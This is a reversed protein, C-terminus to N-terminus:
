GRAPAPPQSAVPEDNLAGEIRIVQLGKIEWKAAEDQSYAIAVKVRLADDDLAHLNIWQRPQLTLKKRWAHAPKRSGQAPPSASTTMPALPADPTAVTDRIESILKDGSYFMVKAALFNLPRQSRNEFTLRLTPLLLGAARDLKPTITMESLEVPYLADPSVGTRKIIQDAESFLTEAEETQGKDFLAKGKKILMNSLKISIVEPNADFAKRYWVIADDLRNGREHLEAVQILTGSDYRYRLSRELYAVALDPRGQTELNQAHHALATTLKAKLKDEADYDRVYYLAWRYQRIARAYDNTQAILDDGWSEYFEYLARDLNRDTPAAKKATRLVSEGEEFRRQAIFLKSHAIEAANDSANRHKLSSALRFQKEAKLREGMALYAKGLEVRGDYSDDHKNVLMQFTHLAWALKGEAMQRRGRQLLDDHDSNRFLILGTFALVAFVLAAIITTATQAGINLYFNGFFFHRGPRRRRRGRFWM